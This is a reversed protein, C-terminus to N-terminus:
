WEKISSQMSLGQGDKGILKIICDGTNYIINSYNRTQYRDAQKLKSSSEAWIYNHRANHQANFNEAVVKNSTKNELVSVQVNLINPFDLTKGPLLQDPSYGNVNVNPSYGNGEFMHCPLFIAFVTPSLLFIKIKTM